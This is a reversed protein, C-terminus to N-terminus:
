IQPYGSYGQAQYLEVVVIADLSPVDCPNGWPVAEIMLPHAKSFVPWNVKCFRLLEGVYPEDSPELPPLDYGLNYAAADVPTRLCPIGNVHVARIVVERSRNFCRFGRCVAFEGEPPELLHVIPAGNALPFTADLPVLQPAVELDGGRYASLIAEAPRTM